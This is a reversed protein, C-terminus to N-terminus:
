RSVQISSVVRFVYASTFLYYSSLHAPHHPSFADPEPCPGTTPKQSCQLSSEPDMFAFFNKFLQTVYAELAGKQEM